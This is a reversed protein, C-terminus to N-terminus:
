RCSHNLWRVKFVKEASRGRLARRYMSAKISRNVLHGKTSLDLYQGRVEYDSGLELELKFMLALASENLKQLTEPDNVYFLDTVTCDHISEKLLDIIAVAEDRLQASIPAYEAQDGIENRFWLPWSMWPELIIDVPIRQRGILMDPKHEPRRHYAQKSNRVLPFDAQVHIEPSYHGIFRPRVNRYPRVPLNQRVGCGCNKPTEELVRRGGVM